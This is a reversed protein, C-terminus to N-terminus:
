HTNNAPSDVPKSKERTRDLEISEIAKSIDFLHTLQNNPDNPLSLSHTYTSQINAVKDKFANGQVMDLLRYKTLVMTNKTTEYTPVLDSNNLLFNATDPMVQTNFEYGEQIWYEPLKQWDSFENLLLQNKHDKSNTPIDLISQFHEIVSQSRDPHQIDPLKNVNRELDEIQRFRLMEHKEGTSQHPPYSGLAETNQKNLQKLIQQNDAEFSSMITNIFGINPGSNQSIDPIHQSFSKDLAEELQDALQSNVERLNFDGVTFYPKPYTDIGYRSTGNNIPYGPTYLQSTFELHAIISNNIGLPITHTHFTKLHQDTMQHHPTNPIPKPNQNSSDTHIKNTM